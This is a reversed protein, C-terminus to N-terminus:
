SAAAGAGAVVIDDVPPDVAADVAVDVAAAVNVVAVSVIDAAAIRSKPSLCRDGTATILPEDLTREACCNLSTSKAILFTFSELPM